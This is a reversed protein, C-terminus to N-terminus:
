SSIRSQVRLLSEVKNKNIDPILNAFSSKKIEDAIVTTGMGNKKLSKIYDGLRLMDNTLFKQSKSKAAKARGSNNFNSKRWNVGGRKELAIGLGAKVMKASDMAMYENVVCLIGILLRDAKPFDVARFEVKSDLVKALFTISRLFRSFKAVVLIANEKKCLELAKLVEPRSDNRGSLSEAFNGIIVGNNQEVYENITRIQWEMSYDDEITVTKGERTKLRSIRCYSVFKQQEM